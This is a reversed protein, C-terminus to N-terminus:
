LEWEPCEINPYRSKRAFSRCFLAAKLQSAESTFGTFLLVFIVDSQLILALSEELTLM